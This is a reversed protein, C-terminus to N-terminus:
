EKKNEFRWVWDIGPYINKFTVKQYKRVNLIGSPASATYYNFVTELPEETIINDRSFEAGPLDIDVRSFETLAYDDNVVNPKHNHEKELFVYSFGKDTLYLEVNRTALKFFVFDIPNDKNDTFQGKNEEFGDATNKIWDEVKSSKSPTSNNFINASVFHSFGFLFLGALFFKITRM